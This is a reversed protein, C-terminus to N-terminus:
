GIARRQEPRENRVKKLEDVEQAKRRMDSQAKEEEIEECYLKLRRNEEQLESNQIRLERLALATADESCSVPQTSSEKRQEDKAQAVRSFSVPFSEEEDSSHAVSIGSLVISTLGHM